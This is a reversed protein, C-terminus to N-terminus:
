AIKINELSRFIWFAPCLLLEHHDEEHKLVQKPCFLVEGGRKVKPLQAGEYTRPAFHCMWGMIKTLLAVKKQRKKEILSQGYM